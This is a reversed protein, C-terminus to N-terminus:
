WMTIMLGRSRHRFIRYLIGILKMAGVVVNDIHISFKLDSSIEVGLDRLNAKEEILSDCPATYQAPQNKIKGPWFRIVEFKDSNFTMNVESAWKYLSELDAQLQKIDSPDKIAREVRTDDM